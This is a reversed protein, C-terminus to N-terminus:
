RNTREMLEGETTPAERSRLVLIVAVVAASLTGAIMDTMTDYNDVQANSDTVLDTVFEGVEWLFALLASFSTVIVARVWSPVTFNYREMIVRLAYDSGLAIFIGSYFHVVTDWPYWVGYFHLYTGVYAGSFLLIAYLLQLTMPIKVRALWELVLPAFSIQILGFLLFIAQDNGRSIEFILTGALLLELVVLPLHRQLRSHHSGPKAM